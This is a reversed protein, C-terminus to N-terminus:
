LSASCNKRFKMCPNLKLRAPSVINSPSVLLPLSSRSKGERMAWSFHKNSSLLKSDQERIGLLFLIVQMNDFLTTPWDASVQLNTWTFQWENLDLNNDNCFCLCLSGGYHWVCGNKNWNERLAFGFFFYLQAPSKEERGSGGKGEFITVWWTTTTRGSRIFENFQDYIHFQFFNSCTYHILLGYDQYNFSVVTEDM